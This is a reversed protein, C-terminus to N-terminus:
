VISLLIQLCVHSCIIIDLLTIKAFCAIELLAASLKIAHM